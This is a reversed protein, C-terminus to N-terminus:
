AHHQTMFAHKAGLKSLMIAVCKGEEGTLTSFCPSTAFSIFNKFCNNIVDITTMPSEMATNAWFSPGFFGGGFFGSRGFISGTGFFVGRSSRGFFGLMSKTRIM